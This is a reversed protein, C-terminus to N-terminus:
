PTGRMRALTSSWPAEERSTLALWTKRLACADVMAHHRRRCEDPHAEFWDELVMQTLGDKLMRTMVPRPIPGCAQAESDPLDFGALVNAVLRLDNPFDALIYPDPISALFARLATTMAADSLAANGRNLLPYVVDRVFETTLAPLPDREAYFRHRGDESVLALSVLDAGIADAWETDLFLITM